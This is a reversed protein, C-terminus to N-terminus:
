LICSQSLDVFNNSALVQEQTATRSYKEADRTANPRQSHLTCGNVVERKLHM